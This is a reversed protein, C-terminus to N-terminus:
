SSIEVGGRNRGKGRAEGGGRGREEEKDGERRRENEGKEEGRELCLQWVECPLLNLGPDNLDLLFVLDTDVLFFECFQVYVVTDQAEFVVHHTQTCERTNTNTDSYLKKVM